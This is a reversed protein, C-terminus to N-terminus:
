YLISIKLKHITNLIEYPKNWSSSISLKTTVKNIASVRFMYNGETLLDPVTFVQEANGTEVPVWQRDGKRM